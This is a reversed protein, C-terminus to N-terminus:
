QEKTRTYRGRLEGASEQRTATIDRLMWLNTARGNVIDQSYPSHGYRRLMRAAQRGDSVGLIKAASNTTCLKGCWWRHKTTTNCTCDMLWGHCMM